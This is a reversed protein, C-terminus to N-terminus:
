KVSVRHRPLKLNYKKEVASSKERIYAVIEENTMNKMQDSMKKRIERIETMAQSEKTEM